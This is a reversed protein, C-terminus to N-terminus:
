HGRQIQTIMDMPIGGKYIAAWLITRNIADPARSLGMLLLHTTDTKRAIYTEIKM